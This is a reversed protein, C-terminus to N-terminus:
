FSILPIVIYYANDCVGVSAQQRSYSILFKQDLLGLDYVGEEKREVMPIRMEEKGYRESPSLNMGTAM